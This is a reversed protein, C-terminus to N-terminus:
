FCGGHDINSLAYGNLMLLFDRVSLMEEENLKEGNGVKELLVIVAETKDRQFPDFLKQFEYETYEHKGCEKWYEESHEATWPTILFRLNAAFKIFDERDENTLQFMRYQEGAPTQDIGRKHKLDFLRHALATCHLAFTLWRFRERNPQCNIVM